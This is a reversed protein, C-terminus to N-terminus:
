KFKFYFNTDWAPLSAFHRLYIQVDPCISHVYLPLEFLDTSRHYAAIDMKPRNRFITNRAGRLAAPEMGEIDMKILSIDQRGFLHDVTEAPITVGKNCVRSKRGGDMSFLRQGTTEDICLNHCRVNLYDKTNVVLKKFNKLDPEFADIRRYKGGTWDIFRQVTDGTYAGIDLYHEQFSLGLLNYAEKPDSESDFLLQINGTLKALVVNKYVKRSWEDCLMIYVQEFQSRHKQVFELDFLEDGAIPVDPAYVEQEQMIRKVNEVVDARHTGFALLVIMDGFRNKLEEYSEVIFGRFSQHRVFGDSAFVGSAAIGKQEMVDLIRDAGNGMGYLVVPKTSGKLYTWLDM